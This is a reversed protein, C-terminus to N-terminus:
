VQKNQQITENEKENSIKQRTKRYMISCPINFEGFIITSSNKQKMEKLKQKMYKSRNNHTCISIIIIDKQQM